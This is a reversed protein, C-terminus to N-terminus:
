GLDWHDRIQGIVWDGVETRSEYGEGLHNYSVTTLMSNKERRQDLIMGGGLFTQTRLLTFSFEQGRQHRFKIVMHLGDNIQDIESTTIGVFGMEYALETLFRDYKDFWSMPTTKNLCKWIPLQRMVRKGNVIKTLSQSL